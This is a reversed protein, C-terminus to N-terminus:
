DIAVIYPNPAILDGVFYEYLPFYFKILIVGAFNSYSKFM